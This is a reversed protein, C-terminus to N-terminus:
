DATRHISKNPMIKKINPYGNILRASVVCLESPMDFLPLEFDVKDIINVFIGSRYKLINKLEIFKTFDNKIDAIKANRKFLWVYINNKTVDSDIAPKHFILDPRQKTNYITYKKQYEEELVYDNDACSIMAAKINSSFEGQFGRETNYFRPNFIKKLGM